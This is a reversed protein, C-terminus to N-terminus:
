PHVSSFRASSHRNSHQNGRMFRDHPTQKRLRPEAANAPNNQMALGQGQTARVCVQGFAVHAACLIKQRPNRALVTRLFLPNERPQPPALRTICWTNAQERHIRDAASLTPPLGECRANVAPTEGRPWPANRGFWTALGCASHAGLLLVACTSGARSGRATPVACGHGCRLFM